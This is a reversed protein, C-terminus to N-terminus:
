VTHPTWIKLRSGYVAIQCAPHDFQIKGFSHLGTKRLSENALFRSFWNHREILGFPRLEAEAESLSEMIGHATFDLKSVPKCIERERELSWDHPSGYRQNERKLDSIV